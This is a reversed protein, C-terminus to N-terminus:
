CSFFSVFNKDFPRIWAEEKYRAYLARCEAEVAAQEKWEVGSSAAGEFWHLYTSMMSTVGAKPNTSVLTRALALVKPATELFAQAATLRAYTTAYDFFIPTSM